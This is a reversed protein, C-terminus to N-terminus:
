LELKCGEPDHIKLIDVCNVRCLSLYHKRKSMQELLQKCKINFKVYSISVILPM